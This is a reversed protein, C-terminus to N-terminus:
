ASLPHRRISPHVSVDNPFDNILAGGGTAPAVHVREDFSDLVVVSNQIGILGRFAVRQIHNIVVLAFTYLDIGQAFLSGKIHNVHQIREGVLVRQERGIRGHDEDEVGPCGWWPVYGHSAVNTASCRACWRRVMLATPRQGGVAGLPPMSLWMWSTAKLAKKRLVVIFGSDM